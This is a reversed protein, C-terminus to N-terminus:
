NKLDSKNKNIQRTRQYHRYNSFGAKVVVDEIPLDPNMKKLQNVEELRWQNIYQSVNTNFTVNIFKSIYSRNIGFNRVLDDLKFNKNLYPKEKLFYATIDEETLLSTSEIYSNNYVSDVPLNDISGKDDVTIIQGSPLMINTKFKNELKNAVTTQLIKYTVIIHQLPILLIMTVDVLPIRKNNFVFLISFITRFLLLLHVWNFTKTALNTKFTHLRVWSLSTYYLMCLSTYIYLYSYFFPVLDLERYSTTSVFVYLLAVIMIFIVISLKYHSNDFQQKTPLLYCIFNYFVVQTLHILLFFIPIIFIKNKWLELSINTLLWMIIMLLYYGGLTLRIKNEISSLSRNFVIIFIIGCTLASIIPISILLYKLIDM